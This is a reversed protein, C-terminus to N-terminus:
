QIFQNTMLEDVSPTRPLPDYERLTAIMPPWDDPNSWGVPKGETSKSRMLAPIVKLAGEALLDPDRTDDPNQKIIRTAEAVAENPSNILYELARQTGKVFGQVVAPRDNIAKQTTVIGWGVVPLYDAFAFEGAPMGRRAFGVLDYSGLQSNTVDFQGAAWQQVYTQIDANIVEIKDPDAGVARAFAPFLLHQISGPVLAVRRGELDKPTQIGSSLFYRYGLSEKQYVVAVMKLPANQKAVAQILTLGNILGFDGQGANVVQAVQVSGRGGQLTVDLGQEAYWGRDKALIFSLHQPNREVWDLVITVQQPAAAPAPSNRTDTGAPACNVALLLVLLSSLCYTLRRCVSPGPYTARRM